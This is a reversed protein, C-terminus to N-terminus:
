WPQIWDSFYERYVTSKIMASDSALFSMARASYGMGDFDVLFKHKWHEGLPVSKSFRYYKKMGECGGPFGDCGVAKTFATDMLDNNMEQLPVEATVYNKSGPSAAFVVSRTANSDTTAMELFRSTIHSYDVLSLIAYGVSTAPIVDLVRAPLEWWGDHFGELIDYRDEAGM